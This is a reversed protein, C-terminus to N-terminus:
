RRLVLKGELEMAKLLLMEVLGLQECARIGGCILVDAKVASLVRALAGCGFGKTDILETKIVKGDEIKLAFLLVIADTIRKKLYKPTNMKM